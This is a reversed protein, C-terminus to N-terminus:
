PLSLLTPFIKSTHPLLPNQSPRQTPPVLQLPTCSLTRPFYTTATHPGRCTFVLFSGSEKKGDASISERRECSRWCTERSM